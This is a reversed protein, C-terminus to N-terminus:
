KADKTIYYYDKPFKKLRYSILSSDCNYAQAALTKSAFIGLPTHIPKAARMGSPMDRRRASARMHERWEDTITRASLKACTEASVIKGTHSQSIRECTVSSHHPYTHKRTAIGKAIADDSRSVTYQIGAVERVRGSQGTTKRTFPQIHEEVNGLFSFDTTFFDTSM